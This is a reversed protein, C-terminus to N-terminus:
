TWRWSQDRGGASGALAAVALVTATGTASAVGSRLGGPVVRTLDTVTRLLGLATSGTATLVPIDRQGCSWM